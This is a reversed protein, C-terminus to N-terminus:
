IPLTEGPQRVHHRVLLAYLLVYVVSGCLGAVLGMGFGLAFQEGRLRHFFFGAAAIYVLLGLVAVFQSRRDPALTTGCSSCALEDRLLQKWAIPHSCSPCVKM